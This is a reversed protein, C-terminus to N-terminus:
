NLKSKKIMNNKIYRIISEQTEQNRKVRQEKTEKKVKQEKM